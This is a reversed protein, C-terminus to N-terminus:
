RPIRSGLCRGSEREITTAAKMNSSGKATVKAPRRMAPRPPIMGISSTPPM